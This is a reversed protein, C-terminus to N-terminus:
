FGVPKESTKWGRGWFCTFKFANRKVNRNQTFAFIETDNFDRKPLKAVLKSAISCFFNFKEVVFKSVFCIEDSDNRLGINSSGWKSKSPISLNKLFIGCHKQLM